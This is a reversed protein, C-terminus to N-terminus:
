KFEVALRLNFMRGTLRNPFAWQQGMADTIWFHSNVNKVNALNFVEFMVSWNDVHKARRMWLDTKPSFSLSAGIDIRWYTPIRWQARSNAIRPNGFPLGDSVVTKLHVRLQPLRPLYDQFFMTFAYRQEQPAAIWGQNDNLLNERSRMTSLSIWSDAGPVLEGYLKLDLGTSYSVADNMGSYRVRVNDVTYSVVRDAYKFYAEATLKFPRGWARFYYDGGAVVHVSRQARIDNNLQIRGVGNADIPMTRLEKYFPAQYYLGTAFRLAFNRKYTPLYTLAARPSCLFEGNYSWWNLRVGGTLVLSGQKLQWKYTDQAYAQLRLSRMSTNGRLSYFINMAHEDHPISYGASDRWEWERIEDSILEGHVSAGWKLTNADKTWSGHHAFTVVGAELRNRAHEHYIGKGLIEVQTDTPETPEPQETASQGTPDEEGSSMPNSQLFYDCTIDYNEHEATYFGSLDFGISLDKNLEGSIGIAGFATRFMDKEQGEFGATLRRAVQFTGFSQSLSDPRFEYSNQSFNGLVSMSWRRSDIDEGVKKKGLRWTIYTQYDVFNPKYNGKTPLAGLMYRSTKYRIGHMMSYNENGTGVYASAGLLSASLKAEFMRPQKYRIDLVSSMKDGYEADFGGASFQLSSVMDSNVFSLGEQQSARILLPRHVEIGNVYVSNEDFSGGRVNYQSSLENNQRVGAFTILVSEIGGGTADPMQRLSEVSTQDIMGIQKRIGHVEIEAINESDSMLMANVNMVESLNHLPQEIGRYGLLSFILVLSDSREVNLEYYGNRNTTTGINKDKVVVNAMDIGVNEADVVYGYIRITQACFASVGFVIALLIITYYRKCMIILKCLYYKKAFTFFMKELSLFFM